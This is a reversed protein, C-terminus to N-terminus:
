SAGPALRGPECHSIGDVNNKRKGSKVKRKRGHKVELGRSVGAPEALDVLIEVLDEDVVGV